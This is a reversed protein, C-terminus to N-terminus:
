QRQGRKRKEMDVSAQRSHCVRSSFGSEERLFYLLLLSSIFKIAGNEKGTNISLPLM